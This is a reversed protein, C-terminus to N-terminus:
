AESRVRSRLNRGVFAQAVYHGYQLPSMDGLPKQPRVFNYYRMWENVRNQVQILSTFEFRDLVEGRILRNLQEAYCNHNPKYPLTHMRRIGNEALYKSYLKGRFERGNDSRIAAPKRGARKLTDIVDVALLGSRRKAVKAFLAERNFDDIGTVIWFTSNDVLAGRMFDISWMEDISKRPSMHRIPPRRGPKVGKREPKSTLVHKYLQLAYYRSGPVYNKIVGFLTKFGAYPHQAIYRWMLDILARDAAQSVGGAKYNLGVVNNAQARSFNFKARLLPVLLSRRRREPMWNVILHTAAKKQLRLAKLEKGLMHNAHKLRMNQEITKPSISQRTTWYWVVSQNIKLTKAISYQSQGRAWRDAIDAIQTSTLNRRRM